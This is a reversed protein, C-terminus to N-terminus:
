GGQNKPIQAWADKVAQKFDRTTQQHDKGDHKFHNDVKTTVHNTVGGGASPAVKPGQSKLIRSMSQAEDINMAASFLMGIPSYKKVTNLAGSASPHEVNKSIDTLFTATGQALSDIGKFVSLKDGLASFADALRIVASTIKDLDAVLAGGHGSAFKGVAMEMKFMLNQLAINAKDLNKLQSDNYVPAKALADRTFAGRALGAIMSDNMGFSRLAENRFGVNKEAQAYQQLKQLMLEPNNQARKFDEFTMGTLQSVRALFKPAEGFLLTKSIVTQLGRFSGEVDGNAVGVQKAAYQYRQLVDISTGTSANFNMMSTAFGGASSVLREMAYVAALIGAKAELSMSATAGLGDKVSALAGVTKETGKIGLNIFLQGVDM